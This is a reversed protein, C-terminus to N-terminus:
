LLGQVDRGVWCRLRPRRQARRPCSGHVFRLRPSVGDRQEEPSGDGEVTSRIGHDTPVHPSQALPSNPADNTPSERHVDDSRAARLVCTRYRPAHHDHVHHHNSQEHTSKIVQDEISRPNATPRTKWNSSSESSNKAVNNEKERMCWIGYVMCWVTYMLLCLLWTCQTPTPILETANPHRSSFTRPPIRVRIPHTNVCTRREPSVQESTFTTDRSTCSVDVSLSWRYMAVLSRARYTRTQHRDQISSVVVRSPSHHHRPRARFRGM